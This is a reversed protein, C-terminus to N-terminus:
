SEDRFSAVAASSLSQSEHMFMFVLVTDKEPIVRYVLKYKGIRIRYVTEGVFDSIAHDVIRFREQTKLDELVRSIAELLSAAYEKNNCVYQIFDITENIRHRAYGTIRVDFAM